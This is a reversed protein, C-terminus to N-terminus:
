NSTTTTRKSTTSTIRSTTTTSSSVLCGPKQVKSCQNCTLLCKQYVATTSCMVSGVDKQEKFKVCRPTYGSADSCSCGSIFYSVRIFMLVCVVRCYVM